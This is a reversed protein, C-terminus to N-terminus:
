TRYLKIFNDFEEPATFFFEDRSKSLVMRLESGYGLEKAKEFLFDEDEKIRKLLYTKKDYNVRALEREENVFSM